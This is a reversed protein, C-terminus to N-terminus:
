RAPGAAIAMFSRAPNGLVSAGKDVDKLVVSGMAVNAGEGIAINDRIRCGMGISAKSGIRAHGGVMTGVSIWANDAIEAGHGINCLNGVICGPGIRTSSLIGRVVVCAAGLSSGEGVIVGGLHPFGRRVGDQGLYANIGANGIVCNEGVTVGRQLWAGARVIAGAGVTAGEDIRAGPEVIAGVGISARPSVSADAPLLSSPGISGQRQLQAVADIFAARPDDVPLFNAEPFALSAHGAMAHTVLVLAGAALQVEDMLAQRDCFTLFGARSCRIWSVGAIVADAAGSIAALAPVSALRVGETAPFHEM